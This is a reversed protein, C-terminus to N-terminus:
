REPRLRPATPVNAGSLVVVPDAPSLGAVVAALATAGGPEVALRLTSWLRNQAEAIDDDGVLLTTSDLRRAVEVAIGGARRAGLSDVAIGGVEVDVARGADLARTLSPATAPEVAVVPNRGALALSVGSFLGGGGCGVLVPRGPEVQEALERGLTSQGAVVAPADYADVHHAGHRDAHALSAALADAYFGDVRHLTAGYEEVLRAKAEPVSAPVFVHAPLGAQAAAWAVAAGHNGGSAASVSTTGVPATLVANLAGRAKFSGTHQLTEVKLAVASECLEGGPLALIPTWRVRGALRETAATLEAPEPVVPAADTTPKM